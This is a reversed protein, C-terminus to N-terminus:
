LKLIIFFNQIKLFYIDKGSVRIPKITPESIMKPHNYLTSYTTLISECDFKDEYEVEEPEILEKENDSSIETEDIVVEKRLAVDHPQREKEKALFIM